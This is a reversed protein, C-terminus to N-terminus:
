AAPADITRRAIRRRVAIVIHQLRELQEADLGVFALATGTAGRRVIHGAADIDAMGDPLKITVQAPTGPPVALPAGVLVGGASIDITTTEVASGGADAPLTVVAPLPIRLRPDARNNRIHARDHSIFEVCGTPHEVAAGTLLVMQDRDGFALQAAAPLAAEVLQPSGVLELWVRHGATAVAVAPARIGDLILAVSHYDHLRRV